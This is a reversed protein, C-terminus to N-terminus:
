FNIPEYIEGQLVIRVDSWLIAKNKLIEIYIPIKSKPIVEISNLKKAKNYDLACALGGTACSLEERDRGYEWTRIMIKGEEIESYVNFHKESNKFFEMATEKINYSEVNEVSKVYHKVGIEFNEFELGIFAKWGSINRIITKKVGIETLIHMEKKKVFGEYYALFTLCRIAHGCFPVDKGLYNIYKFRFDYNEDKMAVILGDAGIYKKSNCIETTFLYPDDIKEFEDETMAIFNNGCADM